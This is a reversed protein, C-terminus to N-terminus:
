HSHRRRMQAMHAGRESRGMAALQAPTVGAADPANLNAGHSILLKLLTTRELHAALHAPTMGDEDRANPDAGHNLLLAAFDDTPPPSGVRDFVWHLPTTDHVGRGNPDAGHELLVRGIELRSRSAAIQLPTKGDAGLVDTKAGHELLPEVLDPGAELAAVHLAMDGKTAKVNPDAGAELLIRAVDSRSLICAIMLATCGTQNVFRFGGCNQRHEAVWAGGPQGPKSGPAEGSVANMQAGRQLLLGVVDPSSTAAAFQLPSMGDPGPAEIDAGRDLLFRVIDADGETVARRWVTEGHDNQAQPNVGIALLVRALAFNHRELVGVLPSGNVGLPPSAWRYLYFAGQLVVLASLLAFLLPRPMRRPTPASSSEGAVTPCETDM